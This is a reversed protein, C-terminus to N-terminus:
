IVGEIENTICTICNYLCIGIYAFIAITFVDPMVRMVAYGLLLLILIYLLLYTYISISKEKKKEKTIRGFQMVVKEAYSFDSFNYLNIQNHMVKCLGSCVSRLPINM